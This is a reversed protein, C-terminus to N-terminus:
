KLFLHWIAVGLITGFVACVCGIGIIALIVTQGDQDPLKM